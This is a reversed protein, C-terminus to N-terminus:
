KQLFIIMLIFILAGLISMIKDKVNDTADNETKTIETNEPCEAVKM